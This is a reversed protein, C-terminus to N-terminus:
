PARLLAPSVPLRGGWCLQLPVWLRGLGPSSPFAQAGPAGARVAASHQTLPQWPGPHAPQGAATGPEHGPAPTPALVSGQTPMQRTCRWELIVETIGPVDEVKHSNQAADGVDEHRLKPYTERWSREPPELRPRPTPSPRGSAIPGSLWLQSLCAGSQSWLPLVPAGLPM